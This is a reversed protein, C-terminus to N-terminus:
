GLPNLSLVSLDPLLPLQPPDRLSGPPTPHLSGRPPFCPGSQPGRAPGASVALACTVRATHQAGRPSQPSPQPRWRWLILDGDRQSPRARKQGPGQAVGASQAPAKGGGSEGRVGAAAGALTPHDRTLLRTLPEPARGLACLGWSQQM